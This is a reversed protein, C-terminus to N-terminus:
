GSPAATRARSEATRVGPAGPPTTRKCVILTLDDGPPGWEGVARDVGNLIDGASERASGALLAAARSAAFREGDASRTDSLGDTYLLLVDGEELTWEEPVFDPFAFVGLLRNHVQAEVIDAQRARHLLAPPHGATWLQASGTDPDLLALILTVFSGSPLREFLDRNLDTLAQRPDELPRLWPFLHAISTALLAAALGHGSVDGVVLGVRKENRLFLYFDGGVDSAPRCRGAIELGPVRLPAAPLAATQMVRALEMERQQVQEHLAREQDRGIGQQFQEFSRRLRSSLYGTFVGALVFYPLLDSLDDWMTTPKRSALVLATLASMLGAAIGGLIGFFLAAAFIILYCQGLFPSNAGGTVHGVLGVFALDLLLLSLVPIRRIPVLHVVYLSLGNYIFLAMLPGIARPEIGSVTVLIVTELTEALVLMWRGGILPLGLTDLLEVDPQATAKSM